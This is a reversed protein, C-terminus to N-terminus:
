DMKSERCSEVYKVCDVWLEDASGNGQEKNIDHDWGDGHASHDVSSDQHTEDTDDKELRDVDGVHLLQQAINPKYTMAEHIAEEESDIELDSGSDEAHDDVPANLDHQDSM